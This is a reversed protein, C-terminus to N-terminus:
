RAGRYLDAKATLLRILLRHRTGMPLCNLATEVQVAQADYFASAKEEWDPGPPAVDPLVGGIQLECDAVKQGALDDAKYVMITRASSM